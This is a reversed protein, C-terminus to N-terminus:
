ELGLKKLAAAQDQAAKALKRGAASEDDLTIQNGCSCSVAQKGKLDALTFQLITGCDPCQLDLTPNKLSSFIDM